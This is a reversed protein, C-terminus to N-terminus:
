TRRGAELLGRYLERTAAAIATLDFHKLIRERSREGFRRRLGPSEILRRLATTLAPADGPPVLFGNVGDEVVENCGASDTTVMPLGMAGAELLVRPLGERYATPLTVVDSIALVAPVDSRPGPWTLARRLEAVEAESLRDMSETERPGILLFRVDRREAGIARAAAALELVGKTRIVRSVMTVVLEGTGIGLEARVRARAAAPIRAPDFVDTAVGSGLIIRAKERSVVREDVFLRADERNQFVTAQSVRCSLTQLRKYAAWVLRTGLRESGYLFSLGTVTALSVPVGALRAALCGWVGPKTDFAHVLDPRRERFIRRLRALARVDDLPSVRGQGLPYCAYPFGAAHFREALAPESGVAGLDFEGSLRAMLALRADVDNGGVLLVRPRRPAM